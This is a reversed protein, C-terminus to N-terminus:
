APPGFGGGGATRVTVRDGAKLELDSLGAACADVLQNIERFSLSVGAVRVAVKDGFSAEAQRPLDSLTRM